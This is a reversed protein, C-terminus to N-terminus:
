LASIANISNISIEFDKSPSSTRSSNLRVISSFSNIVSSYLLKSVNVGNGLLSANSPISEAVVEPLKLYGSFTGLASIVQWEQNSSLCAREFIDTDDMFTKLLACKRDIMVNVDLIYDINTSVSKLARVKQAFQEGINPSRTLGNAVLVDTVNNYGVMDSLEKLTTTDSISLLKM